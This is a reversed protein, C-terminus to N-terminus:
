YTTRCRGSWFIYGTRRVGCLNLLALVAIAFAAVGLSVISLDSTYFLAIIVRHRRLDIIALAMLFVAALPVRGSWRRWCAWRLPSIRRAPFLGAGRSHGSRSYNFALYHAIGTCDDRRAAIVPFCGPASQSVLRADTRALQTLLLFFVAMLACANIWLLMNQQNRRGAVRLQVPTELFDHHEDVTAGM